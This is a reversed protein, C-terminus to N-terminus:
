GIRYRKTSRCKPYQSCGWFKGRRGDVLRMKSHCRDCLLDPLTPPGSMSPLPALPGSALQPITIDNTVMHGNECLSSTPADGVPLSVMVGCELCIVSARSVDEKVPFAANVLMQFREVDYLDIRTQVAYEKATKAFRGTNIYFGGEAKEEQMAAFFVQLDRRGITNNPGYRKCEILYKKGDKWAIADKGRDNSYPTQRVEYGLQRFLAAVADEFRRSDMQLYLESNSLWKNTLARLESNRLAAAEKKITKQRERIAYSAKWEAQRREEDAICDKCGGDKGRRVGHACRKNRMVSDAISGLGVVVVGLSFVGGLVIGVSVPLGIKFHDSITSAIAWAIYLSVLFGGIASGDRAM